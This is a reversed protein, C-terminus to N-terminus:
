NNGSGFNVIESISKLVEESNENGYKLFSYYGGYILITLKVNVSLDNEFEPNNEYLRKRIHRDLKIIAYPARNGSFLTRFLEGQSSITEAM